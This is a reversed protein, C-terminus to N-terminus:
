VQQMSQSQTKINHTDYAKFKHLADDIFTLPVRKHSVKIKGIYLVEFFQSNTTSIDPM